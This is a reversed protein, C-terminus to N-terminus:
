DKDKTFFNIVAGIIRGTGGSASVGAAVSKLKLNRKSQSARKSASDATAQLRDAKSQRGVGKDVRAQANNAQNTAKTAKKNLNKVQGAGAGEIGEKIPTRISAGLV